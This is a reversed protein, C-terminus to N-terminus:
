EAVPELVGPQSKSIGLNLYLGAGPAVTNTPLDM